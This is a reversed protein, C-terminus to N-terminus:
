KPTPKWLAVRYQEGTPTTMTGTMDPHKETTKRENDWVAIQAEIRNTNKDTITGKYAPLRGKGKSPQAQGASPQKFM